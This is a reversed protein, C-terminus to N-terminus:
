QMIIRKYKRLKSRIGNKLHVKKSPDLNKTRLATKWKDLTQAPAKFSFNDIAKAHERTKKIGCADDIKERLKMRTEDTANMASVIEKMVAAM